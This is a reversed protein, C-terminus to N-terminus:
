YLQILQCFCKEIAYSMFELNTRNIQNTKIWGFKYNSDVKMRIGIYMGSEILNYWSGYQSWSGTPPIVRMWINIITESWEIINEIRNEFQLTDVWDVNSIQGLGICYIENKKAVELGNNLTLKCNSQQYKM